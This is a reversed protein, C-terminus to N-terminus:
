ASTRLAASVSAALAEHPLEAETLRRFALAGKGRLKALEDLRRTAIDRLQETLRSASDDLALSPLDNADVVYFRARGGLKPVLARAAETRFVGLLRSEATAADGGPVLGPAVESPSARRLVVDAWFSEDAAGTGAHAAFLRVFAEIARPERPAHDALPRADDLRALPRLWLGELAERKVPDSVASAIADGLNTRAQATTMALAAAVRAEDVALFHVFAPDFLARYDEASLQEGRVAAATAGEDRARALSERLERARDDLDALNNKELASQALEVPALALLADPLGLAAGLPAERQPFWFAGHEKMARESWLAALSIVFPGRPVHATLPTLAAFPTTAADFAVGRDRAVVEIHALARSFIEPMEPMM